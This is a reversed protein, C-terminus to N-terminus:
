RCSAQPLHMRRLQVINGALVFLTGVPEHVVRLCSLLITHNVVKASHGSLPM